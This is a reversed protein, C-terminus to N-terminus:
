LSAGYSGRPPGTTYPRSHARAQRPPSDVSSIVSPSTIPLVGLTPAFRAVVLGTTSACCGLCSCESHEHGTGTERDGDDASPGHDHTAPEATASVVSGHARCPQLLSPEGVVLPFWVALLAVVPKRWWSTRNM